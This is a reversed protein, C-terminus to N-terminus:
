GAVSIIKEGERIGFYMGTELMRPDFSNDPYSLSYLENLSEIDNGSLREVDDTTLSSLLKNDELLMKCYNGNQLISYNKSFIKEVGPTLHSYFKKPLDQLIGTLLENMYCLEEDKCLALLVPPNVAKYLLVVAKLGGEDKLGYWSTYRWYFDDLDGISYIHLPTNNRLFSELENKDQLTVVRTM